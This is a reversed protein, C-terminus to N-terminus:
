ALHIGFVGLGILWDSNFGELYLLLHADRQGTTDASDGTLTFVLAAFGARAFREAHPFLRDITGSFGHALIVLPLRNRPNSGPQDDRTATPEADAAPLFLYGTCLAGAADFQVRERKTM